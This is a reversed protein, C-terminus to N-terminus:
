TATPPSFDPPKRPSRRRGHHGRPLRRLVEDGSDVTRFFDSICLFPKEVQRPFLFRMREASAPSTPRLDGPRGRRRQRRLPGLGGPPHAATRGQGHRAGRATPSPGTGQLRPRGRGARAPLGVSQPLPRDRQPLRRHRRRGHGQRGPHRPLSSPLRPNDDAVEPSRVPLLRRGRDIQPSSRRESKRPRPRPRGSGHRFGPRGRREAKMEM